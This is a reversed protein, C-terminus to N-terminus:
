REVVIDRAPSGTRQPPDPVAEGFPVSGSTGRRRSAQWAAVCALVTLWVMLANRGLLAATVYPRSTASAGDIGSYFIPYILQSVGATGLLITAVRRLERDLPARVLMVAIPGGLWLIYQPSLTKNTVTMLAVTAVCIWGTLQPDIVHGSPMARFARVWLAVCFAVAALQLLSSVTIAAASGAGHIEFAKFRSRFIRWEGHPHLAHAVMLPTAPVSEIQLGRRSQWRLPSVLRHVGGVAVSAAVLVAGTVVFAGVTARWRRRDVVMAPLLLGPWLKLAAGVAVFLGTKAPRSLASLMAIGTLVAPLLDFRFYSLSGMVPVFAIWFAVAPSWQRKQRGPYADAARMLTRLFWADVALMSAAYLVLMVNANGMALLYQPLMTLLVPLPYERLTQSVPTGGFMSSLSRWYYLVDHRVAYEWIAFVVFTLARTAVWAMAPSIAPRAFGTRRSTVAGADLM